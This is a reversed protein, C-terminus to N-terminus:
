IPTDYCRRYVQEYLRAIATPTYKAVNRFGNEILRSRLTSDSLIKEIAARISDTSEPEVLLAGDGAAEPMSYRNSTAIPRGVAQAELIPMGFGEYLSAFVVLDCRKYAEILELDSLKGLEQYPTGVANLQTRLATTMRGVIELRCNTGKTSELVRVANKNWDTGIQLIIPTRSLVPRPSPRFSPSVCNPIIIVREAQPGILRILEDKTAQSVTTVIRARRIPLDFWLYKFIKRSFGTLRELTACDHITLVLQKKSLGAALYHIDGVIHHIDARQIASSAVNLFRRGIGKSICPSTHRLVRIDHPLEPVIADFIREISYHGHSTRRQHLLVRM